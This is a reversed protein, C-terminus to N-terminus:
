LKSSLKEIDLLKRFKKFIFETDFSNNNKKKIARLKASRSPFNKKLELTSATIPKKNIIEFSLKGKKKKLYTDQYVRM